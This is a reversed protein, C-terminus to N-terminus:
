DGYIYPEIYVRVAPCATNHVCRVTFKPLNSICGKPGELPKSLMYGQVLDKVARPLADSDNMISWYAVDTYNSAEM